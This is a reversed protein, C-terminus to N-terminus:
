YPKPGTRADRAAGRLRVIEGVLERRAEEVADLAIMWRRYAVVVAGAAALLLLGVWVAVSRGLLQGLFIAGAGDILLVVFGVVFVVRATRRKTM